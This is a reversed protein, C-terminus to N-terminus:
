NAGRNLHDLDMQELVLPTLDIRDDRYVVRRSGIAQVLQEATLKEFDPTPTDLIVMNYGERKAVKSVTQDIAEYLEILFLQQDRLLNQQEIQSWAQFEYTAKTIERIKANRAAAEPIIDLDARLLDIKKQRKEADQQLKIRRKQISEQFSVNKKSKSIISAVNIVAVATKGAKPAAQAQLRQVGFGAFGIGMLAAVLLCIMLPRSRKM